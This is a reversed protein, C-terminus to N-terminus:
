PRALPVLVLPFPVVVLGRVAGVVRRRPGLAMAVRVCRARVGVESPGLWFARGRGAHCFGLGPVSKWGEGVRKVSNGGRGVPV